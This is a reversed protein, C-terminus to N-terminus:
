SAESTNRQREAEQLRQELEQVKATHAQIAGELRKRDDTGMPTSLRAQQLRELREKVSDLEWTIPVAELFGKGYIAILDQEIQKSFLTDGTMLGICTVAQLLLATAPEGNKSGKLIKTKLEGAKKINRQYTEYATRMRLLAEQEQQLKVYVPQQEKKTRSDNELRKEEKVPIERDTQTKLAEIATETANIATNKVAPFRIKNLESLDIKMIRGGKKRKEWKKLITLCQIISM